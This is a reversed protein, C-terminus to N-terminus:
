ACMQTRAQPLLPLARTQPVRQEGAGVLHNFSAPMEATPVSGGFGFTRKPAAEPPLGSINCVPRIRREEGLQSMPSELSECRLLM